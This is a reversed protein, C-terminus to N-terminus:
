SSRRSRTSPTCTSRSAAATTTSPSAGQRGQALTVQHTDAHGNIVEDVANDVIEWLLHHLGRQRHRRHVHRGSASRSSARSSRSTRRRHVNGDQGDTRPRWAEGGDAAPLSPSPRAAAARRKSRRGQTSMERGKGGRRADGRIRRHVADAEQGERDRREVADENAVALVGVVRDDTTSRSSRSARARAPSCTSRTSRASSRTSTSPSWRSCTARRRRSCASSRTARASSAYRRGPARRSRPTRRSRSACARLRQKRRRAISSEEAARAAAPRAVAGGVVREGDDFKFLKQVPDGYGTSAPVDNFRRSTPPASTALLLVLDGQALGALVAMVEDGERLRTTRRTRSRACASSGATARHAGRQRGRRRHLGGRRVRARRGRRRDQTRRKDGYQEGIERLEDNVVGWRKSREKLLAELRKAEARKEELEKQIM